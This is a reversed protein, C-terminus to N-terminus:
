ADKPTFEQLDMEKIVEEVAKAFAKIVRHDIQGINGVRFGARKALRGSAILYGRQRLADQFISFDFKSDRPSLFTQILPGADAEALLPTFGMARMRTLLEEANRQYRARRMGIGGEAELDRLAQRCAVLAHTPPTLSFASGSEQLTWHAHLDLSAIEGKGAAAILLERRVVVISFGPVGELSADPAAALVDIHDSVMDLPLAGFSCMADVMFTKGREKALAGIEAVPNVLGNSSDCQCLWVHSIDHDADLAAAVEAATPPQNEPKELMVTQRQMAALVQAVREGERGNSIVLTKKRKGPALCALVADSAAPGLVLVCEHAATGGALRKLDRRLDAVLAHFEPDEPGHDALMSIKVGRSTTVPGATMLYPMDEQGPPGKFRPPVYYTKSM